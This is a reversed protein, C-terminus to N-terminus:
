QFWIQNQIMKAWVALLLEFPLDQVIPYSISKNHCISAGTDNSRTGNAAFGSKWILALPFSQSNIQNINVRNM